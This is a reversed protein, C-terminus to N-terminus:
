SSSGSPPSIASSPSITSGTRISWWRTRCGSTPRITTSSSSTSASGARRPSRSSPQHHRLRRHGAAHRRARRARPDGRREPWLRRLHPRSHPDDSRARLHAPLARAARGLDRRRRRLRRLDRHERRARGRRRHAGGSGGHRHAVHPDPMLRKVTPDLFGEVEDVEVDRGALIRALLEPLDHRQAIALARASAASTSGTAGPAAAVSREVDLFLRTGVKPASALALTM